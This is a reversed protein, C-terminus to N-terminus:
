HPKHHSLVLAVQMLRQIWHMRVCYFMIEALSLGLIVMIVGSPYRLNWKDLVSIIYKLGNRLLAKKTKYM